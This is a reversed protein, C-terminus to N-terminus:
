RLNISAMAEGFRRLNRKLSNRELATAMTRVNNRTHDSLTALFNRRRRWARHTIRSVVETYLQLRTRKKELHACTVHIEELLKRFTKVDMQYLKFDNACAIALLIRISELRAVPAYTEDYDIGEQQNYGQAVLRAKIRSVNGNEDLKNRNM